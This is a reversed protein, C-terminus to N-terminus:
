SPIAHRICVESQMGWSLGKQQQMLHVHRDILAFRQTAWQKVAPAPGIIMGIIPMRRVLMGGFPLLSRLLTLILRVETRELRWVVTCFAHM